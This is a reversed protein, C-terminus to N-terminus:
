VAAEQTRNRRDVTSTPLRAIFRAVGGLDCRQLEDLMDGLALLAEAGRTRCDYFAAVTEVLKKNNLGAARM